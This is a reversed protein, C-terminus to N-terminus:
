KIRIWIRGDVNINGTGWTEYNPVASVTGIMRDPYMMVEERTMKSVTGNPGSCVPDGACYEERPEFPYALVRGSVAIPTKAEDTEGIAFGFTDSVINAGPMLRGASMSLTDDNNEVVVRGPEISNVTTRYEAYDNWVAGHVGGNSDIYAQATTNTSNNYNTDSGWVFYLNNSGNLTGIGWSGSSTKASVVSAASSPAAIHLAGNRTMRIWSTSTTKGTIQGTMTGGSLKLYTSTITNGSADATARGATINAPAIARLEYGNWAALWSTSSLGAASYNLTITSNNGADFISDAMNICMTAIATGYTSGISTMWTGSSPVFANNNNLVSIYTTNYDRYKWFFYMTAGDSSVYACFSDSEIAGNKDGKSIGFYRINCYCDAASVTAKNCGYSITVLGNGTHRSSVIFSLRYNGWAVISAQGILRYGATNGDGGTLFLGSTSGDLAWAGIEPLSWAVNAGGNFTKGTKGITLTRATALTTATTANGSLTGYFTKAHVAVFPWLSTGLSSVGNTADSSYPIIGRSTTRIWESFGADPTGMGWYSGDSTMAMAPYANKIYVVGDLSLNGNKGNWSIFKNVGNPNKSATHIRITEDNYADIEYIYTNSKSHIKITGGEGDKLIEVYGGGVYVTGNTYSNGEVEFWAPTASTGGIVKLGAPSRYSDYDTYILHVPQIGTDAAFTIRPNTSAATMTADTTGLLQLHHGHITNWLKETNGLNYTVTTEPIFHGSTDFRAHATTGKRFILSTSTASSLYMTTSSTICGNDTYLHQPIRTTNDSARSYIIWASRTHDYLGRNIAAYISVTGNSNTVKVTRDTTGSTTSGINGTTSIGGSGVSVLGGDNNLYLTTTTTGSGKAMIENADIEIHAQTDTGGVILAPKNNATGSADTTKSLILTGTITANGNAKIGSALTLYGDKTLRAAHVVSNSSSGNAYSTDDKYNFLFDDHWSDSNYHGLEWSGNTTKMSLIPAYGSSTNQRILAVDRGSWWSTGIAARVIQGSTNISITKRSAWTQCNTVLDIGHDSTIYTYETSGGLAAGSTGGSSQMTSASEGSGFIALGGGGIVVGTGDNTGTIFKIVERDTYSGNNYTINGGLNMGANLTLYGAGSISAVNTSGRRFIWGRTTTDSMTFYTAWDGSVGGHTSFNATKAFMLGYIPASTGASGSYLSIGVGTGTTAQVGLGQVAEIKQGSYINKAVGIGGSTIISGTTTSTSDATSVTKLGTSFLSHEDLDLIIQNTTTSSTPNIIVANNNSSIAVHNNGPEGFVLQTTNGSSSTANAGTLYIHGGAFGTAGTVKLKYDTTTVDNAGIIFNGKASVRAVEQTGMRMILSTNSASSIYVTSGGTMYLATSATRSNITDVKLLGVQAETLRLAM